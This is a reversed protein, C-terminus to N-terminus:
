YLVTAFTSRQTFGVRQYLRVAATNYDNVYLSVVDWRRLALGVVASMAGAALGQGRLRPHMWVGQVQCYPGHACGVDSKFLVRGDEVIGFARGDAITRQVHRRYSGTAELPTVGVEETYMRVAADFYPDLDDMTIQRVRPDVPVASPQDIAMMPQDPRLDRVSSWQGGYAQSLGEWLRTAPGAVGMISAARRRPGLYRVYADLAEDDAMVPVLNSGAHCVSVLEQGRDFGIVQCGLTYPDLGGAEIRSAVFINELPSRMLLEMVEEVDDDGLLRVAPRTARGTRLRM